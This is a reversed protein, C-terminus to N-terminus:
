KHDNEDACAQIAAEIWWRQESNSSQKLAKQLEPLATEPQRALAKVAAERRSFDQDGLQAIWKQIRQAPKLGIQVTIEAPRPDTQLREDIAIVQVRHSGQDLDDLRLIRNTIADNWAGDDIRWSFRPSAVNKATLALTVGDDNNDRLTVSTEPLSGHAPVFVVEDRGQVSTQLFANGSNDRFAGTLKRRDVFPQSENPAFCPVRLGCAARFLQKNAVVWYVGLRDAVVSEAEPIDPPRPPPINPAPSAARAGAVPADATKKWGNLDDYQWVSENLVVSLMGDRSFYSKNNQGSRLYGGPIIQQTKNWQHWERGDFCNVEWWPDDYCIRGNASFEAAFLEGNGLRFNAPAAQAQLATRYNSFRRFRGTAPEYILCPVLVPDPNYIADIFWVRGKSDTVIKCDGWLQQNDPFPHRNWQQGDWENLAAEDGRLVAFIKGDVTQVLPRSPRIIGATPPAPSAATLLAADAVFGGRGFELALMRGDKLQFWRHITDFPSNAQWSIQRPDGDDRPVFWGGMGFAGLWLGEATVRWRRDTLQEASGYSDLGDILKTWRGARQRWLVSILGRGNLDGAGGSIVCRDEGSLFMNQVVRFANSAPETIPAGALTEPNVSFIGANRVAIWLDTKDMPAIISIRNTTVGALGPHHTVTDGDAILVGRLAGHEDGGLLCNSWFWIRGREDEVMSVPLRNTPEGGPWLEDVTIVHILKAHPSGPGPTKHINMAAETVWLNTHLDLLLRMSHGPGRLNSQLSYASHPSLANLIVSQDRTREWLAYAQGDTTQEFVVAKAGVTISSSSANWPTSYSPQWNENWSWWRCEGSGAAYVRGAGDQAAVQFDAWTDNDFIQLQASSNLCAMGAALLLLKTRM